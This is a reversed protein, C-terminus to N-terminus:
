AKAQGRYVDFRLLKGEITWAPKLGALPPATPPLNARLPGAPPRELPSPRDSARWIMASAPPWSQYSSRSPPPAQKMM